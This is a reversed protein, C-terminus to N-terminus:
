VVVRYLLWGALGILAWLGAASGIVITTRVRLPYRRSSRLAPQADTTTKAPLAPM